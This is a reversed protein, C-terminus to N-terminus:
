YINSPNEHQQPKKPHFLSPPIQQSKYYNQLAVNQSIPPVGFRSSVGMGPSHPLIHAPQPKYFAQIERPGLNLHGQYLAPMGMQPVYPVGMPKLFPSGGDSGGGVESGGVKIGGAGIV